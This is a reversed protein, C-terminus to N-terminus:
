SNKTEKDLGIVAQLFSKEDSSKKIKVFGIEILATYLCLLKFCNISEESEFIEQAIDLKFVNFRLKSNDWYTLYLQAIELMPNSIAATQWDIIYYNEGSKLITEKLDRHVLTNWDFKDLNKWHRIFFIGASFIEKVFQPKV